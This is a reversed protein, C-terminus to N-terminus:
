RFARRALLAMVAGLALGAWVRGWATGVGWGVGLGVLLTLWFPQRSRVSAGSRGPGTPADAPDSSGSGGRSGAARERALRRRLLIGGALPGVLGGVTAGIVLMVAVPEWYTLLPGPSLISRYISVAAFLGGGVAAGILTRRLISSEVVPSEM